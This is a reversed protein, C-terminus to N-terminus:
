GDMKKFASKAIGIRKKISAKSRGDSSLASRQFTMLEVIFTLTLQLSHSKYDQFNIFMQELAANKQFNIDWYTHKSINKVRSDLAM